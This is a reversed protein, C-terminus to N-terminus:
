LECFGIYKIHIEFLEKALSNTYIDAFHDDYKCFEISMEDTNIMERIFHYKTDIHNSKKHFVHNRSLSIASKNDCFIHTPEQQEHLLETMIRGMWMTQCATKTTAVYDVEVSLLNWITHKKSAWSVVILGFRFVYGSASKRDDISGVFDSDTYGILKFDLYSRYLVDYNTTGVVFRPIKKGNQWHTRKVTEM